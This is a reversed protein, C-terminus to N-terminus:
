LECKVAHDNANLRTTCTANSPAAAERQNLTIRGFMTKSKLIAIISKRFSESFYCYIFPNVCSNASGLWQAIPMIIYAIIKKEALSPKSIILHLNLSYLPLWFFAFVVFVVALMRVIKIKSRQINREARTGRIGSVNRKWVRIGIM